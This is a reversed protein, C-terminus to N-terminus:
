SGKAVMCVSPAPEDKLLQVITLALPWPVQQNIRLWAKGGREEIQVAPPPEVLTEPNLASDSENGIEFNDSLGNQM